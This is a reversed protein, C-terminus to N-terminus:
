TVDKQGTNNMLAETAMAAESFREENTTGLFFAMAYGFLTHDLM